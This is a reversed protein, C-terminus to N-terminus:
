RVRPKSSSAPEILSAVASEHTASERTAPEHAAGPLRLSQGVALKSPSVGPNLAAIDKWRGEDGLERRAIAKFTDGKQVKYGGAAAVAKKSLPEDLPAAKEKEKMPAVSKKATPAPTQPLPDAAALTDAPMVIKSGVKLNKPTLGPNLATIESWRSEKGLARRAILALSDGKQVVYEHAALPAVPPTSGGMTPSNTPITPPAVTTGAPKDSLNAVPGAPPADKLPVLTDGTTTATKVSGDLPAPPNLASDISGTPPLIHDASADKKAHGTLRSWFGPSKSDGWFSVAVITILFFVLAIVGYREIQQM